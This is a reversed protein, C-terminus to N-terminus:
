EGSAEAGAKEDTEGHFVSHVSGTFTARRESQAFEVSSAAIEGGDLTLAVPRDSRMVNARFDMSASELRMDYHKGDHIRVGDSLDAHDNRADYVGKAASLMVVADNDGEIRVDLQELEFVDPKAMDQVGLHARLEYPRGDKRYGVLKPSEITIRTGQMGIHAFRLDAPLFRFAELALGGLIFALIGGAGWVLWRRLRSVRLSHRRAQPIADLRPAVISALRDRRDASQAADDM